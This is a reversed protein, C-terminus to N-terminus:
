LKLLNMGLLNNWEIAERVIERGFYKHEDNQLKEEIADEIGEMRLMRHITKWMQRVERRATNWKQQIYKMEWLFDWISRDYEFFTLCSPITLFVPMRLVFEMTPQYSPSIQLITALLDLFSYSQSGDVISFRNVCLHGIYQESPVVVQQFITKHVAQQTNYDEIELQELGYPTAFRFSNLIIKMLHLHIDVTESFSLSQLNLSNILHPILDAQVLALRVEASCFCILTEAM